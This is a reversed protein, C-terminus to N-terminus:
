KAKTQDDLKAKAAEKKVMEIAKVADDKTKYGRPSIAIKEDGSVLRFRFEESKDKYLEFVTATKDDKKDKKDQGPALSLGTLGLLAVLSVSVVITKWTKRM